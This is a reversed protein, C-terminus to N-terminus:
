MSDTRYLSIKFSVSLFLCLGPLIVCQPKVQGWNDSGRLAFFGFVDRANSFHSYVGQEYSM